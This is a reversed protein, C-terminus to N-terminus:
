SPQKFDETTMYGVFYPFEMGPRRLIAFFPKNIVMPKCPPESRCCELVAAFAAASKAKAGCENLSFMTQQMAQTIKYLGEEKTTPAEGAFLMGKFFSIDVESNHDVMPYHVADFETSLTNNKTILDAYSLLDFGEREFDAITIFFDDDNKCKIHAIPHPHCSSLLTKVGNKVLAGFRAENEGELFIPTSEGETHWKVVVDMISATGFDTPDTFPELSIDFGNEKLFSNIEADSDSAVARLETTSFLTIAKTFSEHYKSLYLNQQRFSNNDLNSAIFGGKNKVYNLAIYLACAIPTLTITKSM